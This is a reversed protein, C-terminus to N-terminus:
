VGGAAEKELSASVLGDRDMLGTLRTYGEFRDAMEGYRFEITGTNAPDSLLAFAQALTLGHLYLWVVGGSYGLETQEMAIENEGPNLVVKRGIM